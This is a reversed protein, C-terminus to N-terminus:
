QSEGQACIVSQACRCQICLEFLVGLVALGLSVVIMVESLCCRGGGHALAGGSELAATEGLTFAEEMTLTLLYSVQLPPEGPLVM